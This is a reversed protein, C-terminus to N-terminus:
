RSAPTAPCTGAVERISEGEFEPLEIDDSGPTKDPKPVAAPGAERLDDQDVSGSVEVRKGVLKKLVDDAIMEVKYMRGTPPVAGSTGVAGSASATGSAVSADALIYDELIGAKEAINPQRGPVDQERYLCGVLTTKIMM